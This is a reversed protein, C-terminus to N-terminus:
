AFGKANSSLLRRYLALTKDATHRFHFPGDIRARAGAGLRRRLPPDRALALLANRLAPADRPPVVLGSIGDEVLEPMGGVDTVVPPIGQAMAELVAKPLGEREISPMVAIDCAGALAAADPRFGLFHIHPHRGVEKKLHRDRIEGFLLLHLSEAAPDIDRVADLLVDAGKVPRMNGTFVVTVADPPIGLEALAARPAPSYWAPDHGKWIVNLRSDPIDFRRLYRRVADSVCVIANVRPNLYSLRSAPDWRHLHGLTGRYGVIKPPAAMRRTALLATSLARNTLAHILDFQRDHLLTRYIDIAEHEFRSHFEHDMHPIGCQRCWEIAPSDPNDIAFLEVGSQRLACALHLEVRDNSLGSLLVRTM